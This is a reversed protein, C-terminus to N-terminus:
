PLMDGWGVGPHVRVVCAQRGCLVQQLTDDWGPWGWLNVVGGAVPPDNFQGYGALVLAEVAAGIGPWHLAQRSEAYTRCASASPPGCRLTNGTSCRWEGGPGRGMQVRWESTRM